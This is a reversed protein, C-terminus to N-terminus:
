KGKIVVERAVRLANLIQNIEKQSIKRVAGGSRFGKGGRGYNPSAVGGNLPQPQFSPAPEQPQAVPQQAEVAPQAAVPQPAVSQSVPAAPQQGAAATRQANLQQL